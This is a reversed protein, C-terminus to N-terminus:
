PPNEQRGRVRRELVTQCESKMQMATSQLTQTHLDIRQARQMEKEVRLCDGLSVARWALLVHSRAMRVRQSSDRPNPPLPSLM